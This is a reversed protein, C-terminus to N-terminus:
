EAAYNNRLIKVEAVADQNISMSLKNSGSPESGNLGDVTAVTSRGRQGSISPLDTGFGEGVSEIDDIYSTGPVLRLLLTIDRGKTSILAKQDATLRGTLDSSETEVVAGEAITTVVENLSGVNLTLKGLALIENASLVNNTRQYGRFGAHEIKITYVGPQLAPFIFDGEENSSASRAGGTREETLTIKAGAIVKGYDDVVAGSITGTVSQAVALGGLLATCFLRFMTKSWGSKFPFM